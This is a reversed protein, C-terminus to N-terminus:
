MPYDYKCTIYHRWKLTKKTDNRSVGNCMSLERKEDFVGMTYGGLGVGEKIYKVGLRYFSFKCGEHYWNTKITKLNSNEAYM